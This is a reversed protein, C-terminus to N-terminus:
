ANSDASGCCRKFKKGSGCSCLANRGQNKSAVGASKVVGDFYLWRGDVRVFRSRETMVQEQDDQVYYAKFEVVGEDDKIGGKKCAVIVLREWVVSEKSFDITKPRTRVDWTQLLYDSNQLVYASYRSRMLAEATLPQQEELHYLGCCAIYTKGSGCFCATQTM